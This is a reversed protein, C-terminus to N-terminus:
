NRRKPYFDSFDDTYNTDTIKIGNKLAYNYKEIYCQLKILNKFCKGNFHYGYVGSYYIEYGLLKFKYGKVM